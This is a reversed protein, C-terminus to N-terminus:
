RRHDGRRTRRTRTTQVDLGLAALLRDIRRSGMDIRGHIYASINPQPIGSRRGIEKQSIGEAKCRDLAERITDRICPEHTM